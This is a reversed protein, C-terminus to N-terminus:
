LLFSMVAGSVVPISVNDDVPFPFVEVISAVIAGIVGIWLPLTNALWLFYASSISISFFGMLGELTKKAESNFIVRKGYNIGVIKAMMDGFVLFSLSAIAISEKFLLFTLLVGLLFTTISSIRKKEKAKYVRFGKSIESSLLDGTRKHLIRLSDAIFSALLVLGILTILARRSIAMSLFFFSMGAPRIFVRWLPLNESRITFMKLRRMNMVSVVFIFSILGLLFVLDSSLRVLFILTLAVMPLVTVALFNEDWTSCYICLTFFSLYILSSLLESPSIERIAVKGLTLVLMGTATAVGRGGRFGLYFPAVHGLIASIGSLYIFLEQSHFVEKAIFMALLGKSCDYLGTLIAIHFGLTRKVNTTGPNGDGLTRIDIGKEWRPILYGPLISGLFYGILISFINNIM